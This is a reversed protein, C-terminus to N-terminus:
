QLHKTKQNYDRSSMLSIQECVLKSMSLSLLIFDTTEFLYLGNKLPLVMPIISFDTIQFNIM